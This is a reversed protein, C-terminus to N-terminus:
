QTKKIEVPLETGILLVPIHRNLWSNQYELPSRLSSFKFIWRIGVIDLTAEGMRLCMIRSADLFYFGIAHLLRAPSARVEQSSWEDEAQSHFCESYEKFIFVFIFFGAVQSTRDTIRIVSILLYTKSTCPAPAILPGTPLFHTPQEFVALSYAHRPVFHARM